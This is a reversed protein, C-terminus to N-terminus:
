LLPFDYNLSIRGDYSYQQPNEYQHMVGFRIRLWLNPAKLQWLLNFRNKEWAKSKEEAHIAESHRRRAASM